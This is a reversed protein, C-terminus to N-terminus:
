VHRSRSDRLCATASLELLWLSLCLPIFRGAEQLQKDISNLGGTSDVIRIEGSRFCARCTAYDIAQEQSLFMLSGLKQLAAIARDPEGTGAAVRALVEMAGPGFVADKEIPVVAMAKEVFAFAATKAGLGMNCDRM